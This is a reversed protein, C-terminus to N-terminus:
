DQKSRGQEPRKEVKGARVKGWGQKKSPGQGSRAGAKGLLRAGVKGLGQMPLNGLEGHICILCSSKLYLNFAIIM